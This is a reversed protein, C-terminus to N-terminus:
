MLFRVVLHTLTEGEIGATEGQTVTAIWPDVAYRVRTEVPFAQTVALTALAAKARLASHRQTTLPVGHTCNTIERM